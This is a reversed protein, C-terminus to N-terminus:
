FPRGRFVTDAAAAGAVAHVVTLEGGEPLAVVAQYDFHSAFVGSRAGRVARVTLRSAAPATRELRAELEYGPQDVFFGARVVASRGGGAAASTGPALTLPTVASSEAPVPRADFTLAPVGPGAADRCAGVAAALVASVALLRPLPM